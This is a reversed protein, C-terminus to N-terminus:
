GTAPDPDGPTTRFLRGTGSVTVRAAHAAVFAGTGPALTVEGDQADHPADDRTARITATGGVVVLIEPGRRDAATPRELEVPHADLDLHSARFHPTPTPHVTERGTTVGAVVPTPLFRADVTALLADVDVHKPTLGGRLVNDSSAMVEVGTGALYAHLNGAPLHIAEGPRLDVIRLLLAVVTGPDDPYREVLEVLWRAAVPWWADTLLTPSALPLPGGRPALRDRLRCAGARLEALAAIAQGRGDRLAWRITPAIADHDRTTLDDALWALSPVDMATLFRATQPPGRFGCLATFPTLAQLLEPKPWPDRYCRAPDDMRIGAAEEADFGARAQAASPHCQLSLPADAALLKVLFPLNPGFRTTVDVGLERCPDAAIVETLPRTTDGDHADAPDDPHAGFWAEAEPGDTPSPRDQLEALATRSGWAYRRVPAVLPRVAPSPM